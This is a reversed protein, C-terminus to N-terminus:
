ELGMFRDASLECYTSRTSAKRNQTALDKLHNTCRINIHPESERLKQYDDLGLAAEGLSDKLRTDEMFKLHM